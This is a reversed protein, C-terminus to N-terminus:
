PRVTCGQPSSRQETTAPNKKFKGKQIQTQLLNFFYGEEEPGSPIGATLAMVGAPSTRRNFSAGQHLVNACIMPLSFCAFQNIKVEKRFNMSFM